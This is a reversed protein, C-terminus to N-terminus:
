LKPRPMGKKSEKSFSHNDSMAAMVHTGSAIVHGTEDMIQCEMFAM